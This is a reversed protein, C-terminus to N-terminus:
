AGLDDIGELLPFPRIFSHAVAALTVPIVKRSPVDMVLDHPYTKNRLRSAVRKVQRM